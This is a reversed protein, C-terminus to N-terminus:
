RRHLQEKQMANAVEPKSEPRVLDAAEAMTLSPFCLEENLRRHNRLISELFQLNEEIAVGFNHPHWCLHYIEGREAAIQMASTIRSLRLPELMSFRSSYPRLFRSQPLNYTGDSRPVDLWATTEPGTANLYADAIRAARRQPSRMEHTSAAQYMWSKETGRWCDIGHKLLIPLCKAPTQMRPFVISRPVIGRKRAIRVAAQIDADFAELSHGSDLCYYHSWTHTGIEQGPCTQIQDILTSAFHFPDDKENRGVSEAYPDDQARSYMPRIEPSYELWEDRDRAFLMGVTAWTAHSDYRDFLDLM